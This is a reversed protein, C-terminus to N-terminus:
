VGTSGFGRAGRVAAGLEEVEEFEATIRLVMRLQAIRDGAKVEVAFGNLNTLVV